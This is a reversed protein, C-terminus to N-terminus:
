ATKYGQEELYTDTTTNRSRVYTKFHILLRELEELTKPLEKPEDPVIEAFKGHLYVVMLRGSESNYIMQDPNYHRDVEDYRKFEKITDIDKGYSLCRAKKGVYKEDCIKRLHAEIEQPTAHRCNQKWYYNHKLSTFNYSINNEDFIENFGDRGITAIRFVNSYPSSVSEYFMWDGVKFESKYTERVPEISEVRIIPHPHAFPDNTVVLKVDKGNEDKLGTYKM